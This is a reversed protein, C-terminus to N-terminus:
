ASRTCKYMDQCCDIGASWMSDRCAAALPSWAELLLWCSPLCWQHQVPCAVINPRSVPVHLDPDECKVDVAAQLWCLQGPSAVILFYLTSQKEKFFAPGGELGLVRAKVSLPCISPHGVKPDCVSSIDLTFPFPM